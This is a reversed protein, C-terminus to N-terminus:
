REIRVLGAEALKRLKPGWTPDHMYHQLAGPHGCKQMIEQMEKDMLLERLEQNRMILDVQPSIPM